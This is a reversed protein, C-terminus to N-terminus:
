AAAQQRRPRPARPKARGTLGLLWRLAAPEHFFDEGVPSKYIAGAAELGNERRKRVAWRLRNESLLNPHRAALAKLSFLEDAPPLAHM